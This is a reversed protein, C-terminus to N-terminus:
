NVGPLQRKAILGSDPWRVSHVWRLQEMARIVLASTDIQLRRVGHRASGPAAHHFNHWAEGLSPVALWWVNRSEDSTKFPSPGTIHCVSNIAFTMHHLLAVRVLSGWFFAWFAAQWSWGWLGGAVPPILMSLAVWLPFSRSIGSIVPDNCLDAAFKQQSTQADFLWGIHSHWFGRVLATVNGGYRWPSHPDGSRDSFRHHKRHDAVWRLIPGQIAMSGAIAMTVEVWRRARFARHTFYRHFGVTIGHGTIVYMAIAIVVDRWSLGWGWLVPVAVILAAFPVAIFLALALQQWITKVDRPDIPLSAELDAPPKIATAGMTYKVGGREIPAM